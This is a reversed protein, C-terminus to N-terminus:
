KAMLSKVWALLAEWRSAREEERARLAREEEVTLASSAKPDSPAVFKPPPMTFPALLEPPPMVIVPTPVKVEQIVVERVITPQVVPPKKGCATIAVAILLLIAM